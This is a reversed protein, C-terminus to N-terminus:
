RRPLGRKSLLRDYTRLTINTQRRDYFEELAKTRAGAAIRARLARDRILRLIDPVLM